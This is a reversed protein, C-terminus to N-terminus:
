RKNPFMADNALHWGEKEILFKNGKWNCMRYYIDLANEYRKVKDELDKIYKQIELSNM